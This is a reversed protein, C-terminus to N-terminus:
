LSEKVYQFVFCVPELSTTLMNRFAKVKKHFASGDMEMPVKGIYGINNYSLM